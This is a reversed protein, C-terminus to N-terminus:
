RREPWYKKALAMVLDYIPDPFYHLTRWIVKALLPIYYRSRRKQIARVIKSAAADASIMGPMYFINNKSMATNVFGPFITIVKVGHPKLRFRLGETWLNVAAKSASYIGSNPTARMASVSSIAVLCGSQRAKMPEIFGSFTHIVGLYNASMTEFPLDSIMYEDPDSPGIGANAIVVDPLGVECIIESAVQHMRSKDRVDAFFITVIAGMSECYKVVEGLNEPNSNTLLCLHVGHAAYHRALAAGIGTSAGTIFICSDSM